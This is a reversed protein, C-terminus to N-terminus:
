QVFRAYDAYEGDATFRKAAYDYSFPRMELLGLHNDPTYSLPASLGQTDISFGSSVASVLKERTVDPGAAKVAEAVLQGIVWGGVYNVDERLAAHGYADAHEDMAKVGPADGVSGPTFCSVFSYYQGVEMPLSGYVTPTGITALGFVPTKLDYQAMARMLLIATTPNGHVAVFDPKANVIELVQATADVANVKIPVAITTGGAKAVAARIYGAYEQGGSTDIHVLLVKPASLKLKQTMAGVGVEAMENYGCFGGYYMPTPPVTMAKHITYSGLVPLKGRRITTALAAQGNSNGMGSLGLVPTQTNLKEYAIRDLAPDARDDEVVINMKRGNIGGAENLARIYDRFGDVWPVEASASPGTMDMILGWDIHDAYVGDSPSESPAARGGSSSLLTTAAVAAAAVAKRLNATILTEEQRKNNKRFCGAAEVM